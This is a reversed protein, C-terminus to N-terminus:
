LVVALVIHSLVSAVVLVVRWGGVAAGDAWQSQWVVIATGTGTFGAGRLM